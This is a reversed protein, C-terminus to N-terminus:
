IKVHRWNEGTKIRHIQMDSVNFKVAISKLTNGEQLLKKIIKVDKVELKSHGFTGLERLRKRAKKVRPSDMAHIAAEEQSAWALNKVHNDTKKHNLHIVVQQNKKPKPLFYKAVLRHFLIAGYGADKNKKWIHFRWIPYGEQLSGKLLSGESIKDTFRALRGHNSIAYKDGNAAKHESITKWKENPLVKVM